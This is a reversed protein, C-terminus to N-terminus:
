PPDTSVAGHADQRQRLVEPGDAGGEELREMRAPVERVNRATISAEPKVAFEAQEQEGLDVERGEIAEHGAMRAADLRHRGDLVVGGRQVVIPEQVGRRGVDALFSTWEEARMKPIEAAAPHLTLDKILYVSM